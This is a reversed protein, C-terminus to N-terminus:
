NLVVCWANCKCADSKANLMRYMQKYHKTCLSIEEPSEIGISDCIVEWSFNHLQLIAGLV